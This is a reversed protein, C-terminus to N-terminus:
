CYKWIYGYATKSKGKCCDTIHSIKKNTGPLSKIADSLSNFKTIFDGNLNYQAVAVRTYRYSDLKIGNMKMLKGIQGSDHGTIKAIEKLTKGSNYLDVFKNLETKLYAKGDGGLTANYGKHFTGLKDIWHIEKESLEDPDDSSDLESIEFNEIGYKKFARYLPRKKCVDKKYDSCHESFRKEITDLTKGVYQKGNIKNTICYIYGM